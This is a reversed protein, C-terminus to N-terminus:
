GKYDDEIFKDVSLLGKSIMFFKDNYDDITNASVHFIYDIQGKGLISDIYSEAIRFAITGDSLDLCFAGNVIHDNVSTIAIAMDVIKEKPVKFPLFSLFRLIQRDASVNFICEIPLDDGQVTCRVVLNEDERTYHCGIEDFFKCVLEYISKAQNEKEEM